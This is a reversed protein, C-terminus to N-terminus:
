CCQTMNHLCQASDLWMSKKCSEVSVLQSACIVDSVSDYLLLQLVTKFVFEHVDHMGLEAQM